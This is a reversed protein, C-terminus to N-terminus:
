VFGDNDCDGGNTLDQVAQLLVLKSAISMQSEAQTRRNVEVMTTLPGRMTTMVAAGLLGVVAVAGFLTFFINGKESKRSSTIHKKKFTM